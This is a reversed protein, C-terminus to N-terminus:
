FPIDNIDIDDVLEDEQSSNNNENKIGNLKKVMANISNIEDQEIKESFEVEILNGAHVEKIMEIYNQSVFNNGGVTVITEEKINKDFKLKM